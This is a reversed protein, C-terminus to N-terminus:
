FMFVYDPVKNYFLSANKDDIILKKLIQIESQLGPVFFHLDDGIHGGHQIASLLPM